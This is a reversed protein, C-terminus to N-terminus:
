QTLAVSKTIPHDGRVISLEVTRGADKELFDSFAQQGFIPQGDIAVVLDSVLVDAKHAPSGDVLSTICVGKNSQLANRETDNLDRFNAGFHWRRKYLYLAGYDFRQVTMPLYTTQSGYTTTSSNGFATVAGGPGYATAAGTTNSTNVTPTTVPVSTTVSGVYRPDVVVVLDAGVSAGQSLAAEDSERHGSSFSSYGLFGYGKRGYVAIIDAPNGGAHELAPTKPPTNTRYKAVVDPTANPYSRYFKSYDSACGGLLVATLVCAVRMPM